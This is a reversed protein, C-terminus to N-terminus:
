AFSNAPDIIDVGFHRCCFLGKDEFSRIISLVRDLFCDSLLTTQDPHHNFTLQERDIDSAGAKM